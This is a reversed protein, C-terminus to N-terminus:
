FHSEEDDYYEEEDETNYLDKVKLGAVYSCFVLEQDTQALAICLKIFQDSGPHEEGKDHRVPKTVEHIILNLRYYLDDARDKEIGLSEWLNECGDKFTINLKKEMYLSM